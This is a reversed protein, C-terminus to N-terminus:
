MHVFEQMAAEPVPKFLLSYFDFVEDTNWPHRAKIIANALVRVSADALPFLQIDEAAVQDRELKECPHERSTTVLISLNDSNDVVDVIECSDLERYDWGQLKRCLRRATCVWKGEPGDYYLLPKAHANCVVSFYTSHASKRWRTDSLLEDLIVQWIRARLKIHKFVEAAAERAPALASNLKSCALSLRFANSMAERYSLEWMNEDPM